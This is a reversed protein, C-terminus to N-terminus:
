SYGATRTGSVSSTGEVCEKFLKLFKSVEPLNQEDVSSRLM